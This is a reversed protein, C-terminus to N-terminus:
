SPEKRVEHAITKLKTGVDLLRILESEDASSAGREAIFMVAESIDIALAILNEALEIRAARAVWTPNPV